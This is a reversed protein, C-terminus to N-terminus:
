WQLDFSFYGAGKAANISRGKAQKVKIAQSELDDDKYQKM